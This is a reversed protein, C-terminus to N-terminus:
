SYQLTIFSFFFLDASYADKKYIAFMDVYLTLNFGPPLM